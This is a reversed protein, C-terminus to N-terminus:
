DEPALTLRLGNLTESVPIQCALRSLPTRHDSSSLLSAEDDSMVPILNQFESDIFVHCTACACGGGCIAMMEDVGASRIAEMLSVGETQDIEFTRGEQTTLSFRM